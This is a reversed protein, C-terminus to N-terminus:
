SASAARAAARAPSRRRGRVRGDEPASGSAASRAAQPAPRGPSRRVDHRAARAHDPAAIRAAAVTRSQIPLRSVFTRFLMLRCPEQTKLPVRDWDCTASPVLLLPEDGRKKKPATNGADMGQGRDAQRHRSLPVVTKMMTVTLRLPLRERRSIRVSATTNGMHRVTAVAVRWRRPSAHSQYVPM